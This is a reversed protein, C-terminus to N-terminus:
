FNFFRDEVELCIAHYIPVHLEQVKYTETEPAKIVIDMFHNMKGGDKGCLGITVAGKAKAAVAALIVNDANGSTSIGVLIDGQRAYAYAQQAFVLAPDADNAFATSLAPLGNLCIARLGQQLKEYLKQGLEPHVKELRMAEDPKLPRKKCFGKMLEGAIHEADACSGGNGCLLLMGDNEYCSIISKVALEIQEKCVTLVPYRSILNEVHKM